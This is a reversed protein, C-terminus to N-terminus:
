ELPVHFPTLLTRDGSSCPHSPLFMLGLYLTMSLVYGQLHMQTRRCFTSVTVFLVAQRIMAWSFLCDSRGSQLLESNQILSRQYPKPTRQSILKCCLISSQKVESSRPFTKYDEYRGGLLKGIYQNMKRRNSWEMYMRAFNHFGLPDVKASAQHWRIQSIM